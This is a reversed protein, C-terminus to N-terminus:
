FYNNHFDKDICFRQFFQQIQPFFSYHSHVIVATRATVTRTHWLKVSRVQKVQHHWWICWHQWQKYWCRAIMGSLMSIVCPLTAGMYITMKILILFFSWILPLFRHTLLNSLHLALVTQLNYCIKIMSPQSTFEFKSLDCYKVKKGSSNALISILM